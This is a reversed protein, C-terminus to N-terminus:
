RRSGHQAQAALQKIATRQAALENRLERLERELAENQAILAKSAALGYSALAYVDVAKGDRSLVDRPLEEAIFGLHEVRDSTVEPRYQYRAVDVRSLESLVHAYDKAAFYRINDKFARSSPTQWATASAAGCVQLPYNPTACDIGVNGNPLITVQGDMGQLGQGGAFLTMAGMDTASSSTRVKIAGRAFNYSDYFLISGGTQSGAAGSTMIQVFSSFLTNSNGAVVLRASGTSSANEVRAIVNAPDNGWVHLKAGPSTLGIGVSGGQTAFYASQWDTLIGHITANQAQAAHAAGFIGIFVLVASLKAQATASM